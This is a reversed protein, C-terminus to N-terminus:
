PHVGIPYRKSKAQRFSFKLFTSSFFNCVNLLSFYKFFKYELSLSFFNNILPATCIHYFFYQTNSFFFLSSCLPFMSHFCKNNTNSFFLVVAHIITTRYSSMYIHFQLLATFELTSYDHADYTSLWILNIATKETTYV